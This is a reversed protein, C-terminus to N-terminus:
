LTLVVAPSGAAKIKAMVRDAEERSAFPGVRVRIRSGQATEAVQTYTKLGLKEVKQRTERAATTDAFAGVQVVFRGADKKASEKEAAKGELLAQAREANAAAVTTKDPAPAPKAAVPKPPAESAKAPAPKAPAPVERSAEARTEPVADTAPASAAAVPEAPAAAVPKAPRASPMVLPPAAEKRPIEIPIDVPIPRPQTEFLLPFGIVGIVVLVVAGILRRRARTRAEQVLDAPADAEAAPPAKNGSKRQFISLLGM